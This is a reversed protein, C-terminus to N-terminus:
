RRVFTQRRRHANQFGTSLWLVPFCLLTRRGTKCITPSSDMIDTRDYPQRVPCELANQRVNQVHSASCCFKHRSQQAVVLFFMANSDAPFEFILGSIVGVEDGLTMLTSSVPKHIHGQSLAATATTSAVLTVAVSFLADLECCHSTWTSRTKYERCQGCPIGGGRTLRDVALKVM